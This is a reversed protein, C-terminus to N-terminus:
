SNGLDYDRGNMARCREGNIRDRSKKRSEHLGAVGDDHVSRAFSNELRDGIEFLPRTEQRMIAIDTEDFAAGIVADHFHRRRTGANRNGPGGLQHDIAVSHFNTEQVQFREGAPHADDPRELFRGGAHEDLDHMVSRKRTAASAGIASGIMPPKKIWWTALWVSRAIFACRSRFDSIRIDLDSVTKLHRFEFIRFIRPRFSRKPSRAESKNRSELNPNSNEGMLRATM